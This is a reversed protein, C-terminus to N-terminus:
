AQTHGKCIDGKQEIIPEKLKIKRMVKLVTNLGEGVDKNPPNPLKNILRVITGNRAFRETLINEPTVHGPLTGPSIVEVRNDFIIIHIDDAISYDRHIVANTIIEHIAISPYKALELGAPTRVRIKEIVKTAQKVAESIQNYVCGEVSIPEFDMTERTGEEASTKYRYLKIGCRKPLLAQPEDAFLVIGAVTPKKNLLVQQKKLWPEPETHPVVAAIFKKIVDSNTITDSDANVM